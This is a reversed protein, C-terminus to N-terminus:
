SKPCPHSRAWAGDRGLGLLRQMSLHTWPSALASGRGPASRFPLTTGAVACGFCVRTHFSASRSDPYNITSTIYFSIITYSLNLETFGEVETSRHYSKNEGYADKIGYKIKQATSQSALSSHFAISPQIDNQVFLPHIIAWKRWSFM